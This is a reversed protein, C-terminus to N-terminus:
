PVLMGEQRLMECLKILPLGELATPDSGELERMLSIGLREWKFSGACDLPKDIAIYRKIEDRSLDRLSARYKVLDVRCLDTDTNFLALSTYFTVTKGSALELQSRAKEPTGPKHLQTDGLVAVQDSGIVLSNSATVSRAKAEALRMSLATFSEGKIATEDTEPAITSFPLGLRELLAARYPSTSALFLKKVTLSWKENHTKSLLSNQCCLCGYTYDAAMDRTENGLSASRRLQAARSNLAVPVTAKSM